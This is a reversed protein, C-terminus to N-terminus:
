LEITRIKIGFIRIIKHTPKLNYTYGDENMVPYNLVKCTYSPSCGLHYLIKNILTKNPVKLIKRNFASKNLNIFFTRGEIGPEDEINM